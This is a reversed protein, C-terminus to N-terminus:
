KILIEKRNRNLDFSVHFFSDYIIFQDFPLYNIVEVILDRNNCMFDAARGELHQSSQAGGVINNLERCRYGSTIHVVGAVDRLPQLVHTILDRINHVTSLDLEYQDHIYNESATKSKIFESLTFNKSLRINFQNKM